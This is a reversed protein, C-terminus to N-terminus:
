KKNTSTKKRPWFETMNHSIVSVIFINQFDSATACNASWQGIGMWVQTVYYYIYVYLIYIIYIYYTNYISTFNFHGMSTPTMSEKVFVTGEDIKQHYGWWKNSGNRKKLFNFGQFHACPFSMSFGHFVWPIENCCNPLCGSIASQTTGNEQLWCGEWIREYEGM